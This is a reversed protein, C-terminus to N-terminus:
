GPIPCKPLPLRRLAGITLAPGLTVPNMPFLINAWIMTGVTFCMCNKRWTRGYLPVMMHDSSAKGLTVIESFTRSLPDYSVAMPKSKPKPKNGLIGGGNFVIHLKDNLYVAQPRQRSDYLMKIQGGEGFCHLSQKAFSQVPLLMLCLLIGKKM